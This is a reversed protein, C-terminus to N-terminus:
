KYIIYYGVLALIIILITIMVILKYNMRPIGFGIDISDDGDSYVGDNFGEIVPSIIIDDHEDDIDGGCLRDNGLRNVLRDDVVDRGERIGRGLSLDRCTKTLDADVLRLTSSDFFKGLGVITNVDRGPIKVAVVGMFSADACNESRDDFLIVRSYDRIKYLDMLDQIFANKNRPLPHVPMGKCDRTITFINNMKFIKQNLGFIRDMYAQIITYTGFSAIGVRKGRSVLYECLSRFYFLGPIDQLLDTDSRKRIADPEMDRTYYATTNIITDDFDWIFLRFRNFM